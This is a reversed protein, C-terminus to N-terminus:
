GTTTAPAHYRPYARGSTRLWFNSATSFGSATLTSPQWVAPMGAAQVIRRLTAGALVVPAQEAALKETFHQDDFDRFEERRLRM